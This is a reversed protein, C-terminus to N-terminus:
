YLITLSSISLLSVLSELLRASYNQSIHVATTVEQYIGTMFEKQILSHQSELTMEGVKFGFFRFQSFLNKSGMQVQALKKLSLHIINLGSQIFTAQNDSINLHPLCSM